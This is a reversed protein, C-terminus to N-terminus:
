SGCAPTDCPIDQGCCTNSSGCRTLQSSFNSSTNLKNIIGVNKGIVRNVKGKCKPCIKIPTDTMGQVKEFRYNCEECKYEYTPM